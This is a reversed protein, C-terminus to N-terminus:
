KPGVTRAAPSRVCAIFLIDSLAHLKTRDLRPDELGDFYRLLGRPAGVDM